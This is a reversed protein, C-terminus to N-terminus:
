EDEWEEYVDLGVSVEWKKHYERMRRIVPSDRNITVSAGDTVAFVPLDYAEALKRIDAMFKQSRTRAM